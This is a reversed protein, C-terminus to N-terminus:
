GDRYEVKQHSDSTRHLHINAYAEDNERNEKNEGKITESGDNKEDLDFDHEVRPGFQSMAIHLIGVM